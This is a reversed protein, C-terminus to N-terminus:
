RPQERRGTDAGTRPTRSRRVDPRSLHAVCLDPEVFPDLRDVTVPAALAQMAGQMLGLHIPCIVDAHNDVLDLFPCNRLGILTAREAPLQEPRFDLDELLDLLHAVAEEETNNRARASPEVLFGGWSRGLEVAVEAPRDESASLGGALMEAILRYNRAGGRDMERRLEFVMPPRGPGTVDGLARDVRGAEILADLHFRVTNVHVGLRGALEAVSLPRSAERLITLILDRRGDARKATRRASDSGRYRDYRREGQDSRRRTRSM